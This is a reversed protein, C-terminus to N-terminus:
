GEILPCGAGDLADGNQQAALAGYVMRVTERLVFDVDESQPYLLNWEPFREFGAAGFATAHITVGFRQQSDACHTTAWGAGFGEVEKTSTGDPSLVEYPKQRAVHIEEVFGVGLSGVTVTVADGRSAGNRRVWSLAEDPESILNPNRQIRVEVTTTGVGSADGIFVCTFWSTDELRDVGSFENLTASELASATVLDCPHASVIAAVADADTETTPPVTESPAVTSGITEGGDGGGVATDEDGGGLVGSFVLVIAAVTAAGIAAIVGLRANSGAEVVGTIGHRERCEELLRGRLDVDSKASRIGRALAQFTASQPDDEAELQSELDAVRREADELARQEAFCPPAAITTDAEPMEVEFEGTELDSTAAVPDVADPGVELPIGPPDVTVGGPDFSGAEFPPPDLEVERPAGMDDAGADPDGYPSDLGWEGTVPDRAFGAVGQPDAADGPMPPATDPELDLDLEIDPDAASPDPLEGDRVRVVRGNPLTINVLGPDDPLSLDLEDDREADDPDRPEDSM